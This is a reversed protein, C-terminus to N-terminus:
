APPILITKLNSGGRATEMAADFAGLPYSATILRDVNVKGTAIYEIAKPYCYPGLHSGHITLEKQDGVLTWNITVPENLVSFAVFTGLRRLMDLGQQAAAPHGACEIYVDAGYGGTLRKVGAVADVEAPNLAVDAGLERALDLRYNKIDVAILMKPNYLRAVQLMCLGINGTGALVVTDGPQIHGREVAHVACALPEIYAAQEASLRPDIAHVRSDAPFRIYEAWGGEARQRKFGFIVHPECMWYYGQQCFRCHGCPIIQEAIVHDGISVGHLEAAREGLAVVRGAFEHGPIVPAECYGGKGGEGWFLPGGTFCKMDSACIGAAGVKVLLEGPGPAPIPRREVRYDRPGYCVVCQMTETSMM